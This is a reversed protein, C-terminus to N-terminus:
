LRPSSKPNRKSIVTNDEQLVLLITSSESFLCLNIQASRNGDGCIVLPIACRGRLLMEREEFGALRFIERTTDDIASEHGPQSPCRLVRFIHDSDM